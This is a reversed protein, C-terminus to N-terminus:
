PRTGNQSHTTLPKLAAGLNNRLQPIYCARFGRPEISRCARMRFSNSSADFHSTPTLNAQFLVPAVQKEVVQLNYRM